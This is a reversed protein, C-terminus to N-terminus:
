REFHGGSHCPGSDGPKQLCSCRMWDGSNHVDMEVINTHVLLLASMLLRLLVSILAATDACGPHQTSILKKSDHFLTTTNHYIAHWHM